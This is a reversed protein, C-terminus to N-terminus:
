ASEWCRALICEHINPGRGRLPTYTVPESLMQMPSDEPTINQAIICPRSQRLRATCYHEESFYHIYNSLYVGAWCVDCLVSGCWLCQCLLCIGCVVYNNHGVGYVSVAVVCVACRSVGCVFWICLMCVTKM